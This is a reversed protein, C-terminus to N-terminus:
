YVTLARYLRARILTAQSIFAMRGQPSLWRCQALRRAPSEALGVLGASRNM